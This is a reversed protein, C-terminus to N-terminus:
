SQVAERALAAQMPLPVIGLYSSVLEIFLRARARDPDPEAECENEWLEFLQMAIAQTQVGIGAPTTAKHALIKDAGRSLRGNLRGWRELDPDISVDNADEWEDTARQAVWDKGVRDLVAGLKLLKADAGVPAAAIALSPSIAIGALAPLAAASSMITRRSLNAHSM